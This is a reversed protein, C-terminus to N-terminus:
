EMDTSSGPGGWFHNGQQLPIVTPLGQVNSALGSIHKPPIPNRVLVVHDPMGHVQLSHVGILTPAPDRTPLSYPDSAQRPSPATSPPRPCCAQTGDGATVVPPTVQTVGKGQLPECQSWPPSISEAREGSTSPLLFQIAQEPMRQTPCVAQCAPCTCPLSLM